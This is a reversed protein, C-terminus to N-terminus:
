HAIVEYRLCDCMTRRLVRLPPVYRLRAHGKRAREANPRIM